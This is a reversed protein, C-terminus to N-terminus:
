GDGGRSPVRETKLHAIREYKEGELALMTKLKPVDGLMAARLGDRVWHRVKTVHLASTFVAVIRKAQLCFSFCVMDLTHCRPASAFLESVANLVVMYFSRAHNLLWFRQVLIVEQKIVHTQARSMQMRWWSQIQLTSGMANLYNLRASAM